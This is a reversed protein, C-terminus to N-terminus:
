TARGPNRLMYTNRLTLDVAHLSAADDLIVGAEATTVATPIAAVHHHPPVHTYATADCRGRHGRPGIPLHAASVDTVPPRTHTAYCHGRPGAPPGAVLISGDCPRLVGSPASLEQLNGIVGTM